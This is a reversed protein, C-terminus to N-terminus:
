GTAAPGVRERWARVAPTREYAGAERWLMRLQAGVRKSTNVQDALDFAVAGDAVAQDVDGARFRARALEIHDFVRSRVFNEPHRSLAYLAQREAEKALSHDETALQRYAVAANHALEADTTYPFCATVAPARDEDAVQSYLEFSLGVASRVEPLYGRGMGGLLQARLSWLLSRIKNLKRGDTPLTQVALGILRLGTDPRGLAQLQRALDALIGVARLQAREDRSERAAQLGYVLYRQAPGHMALDHSMWGVWGSLDAIAALLRHGVAEPYSAHRALDIAYKLQGVAAERCFGGGVAADTAMFYRTADEIREVDTLGIRETGEDNGLFEPMPASLWRAIPDVLSAGTAAAVSGTLVERRTLMDSGVLAGLDELTRAALWAQLHAPVPGPGDGLEPWIVRVPIPIGWAESLTAAVVQPNQCSRGTLWRKVSVHDYSLRVGQLQWGRANVAQAFRELSPFGGGRILAALTPNALREPMRMLKRSM